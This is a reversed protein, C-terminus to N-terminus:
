HILRFRGRKIGQCNPCSWTAKPKQGSFYHYRHLRPFRCNESYCSPSRWCAEEGRRAETQDVVALSAVVWWPKSFAWRVIPVCKAGPTGAAKAKWGPWGWRPLSFMKLPSRADSQLSNAPVRRRAHRAWPLRKSINWSTIHGTNNLSSNFQSRAM